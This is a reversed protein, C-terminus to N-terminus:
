YIRSTSKAIYLKKEQIIKNNNTVKVIYYGASLYRTNVVTIRGTISKEMMKQGRMNYVLAKGNTPTPRTDIYIRAESVSHNIIVNYVVPVPVPVPVPTPTPTPTPTPKPTPTPTSTSGATTGPIGDIIVAPLVSATLNPDYANTSWGTIAGMNGADWLNNLAGSKNKFNVKNNSITNTHSPASYQNWAFIGVNNFAFQASYVKNNRVVIDHGGSISLGYQGPNVLINNEVLIYSGGADGSMIGGGSVSPGGGRIWNGVVKIPDSATGSSLYMSVVDEPASQGAINECVNYSISIGAGSVKDLQVMQGRPMPGVVNKVNNYEVKIGSSSVAYVGTRISEMTNSRVTINSSNSISVGEGKSPGLKCNEIIINSCNTLTISNGTPNAIQLNSITMNSKGNLVLPVSITYATSVRDPSAMQDSTLQGAAAIESPENFESDKCSYFSTCSLLIIITSLILNKM